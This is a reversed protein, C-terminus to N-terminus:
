TDMEAEAGGPVVFLSLSSVPNREFPHSAFPHRPFEPISHSLTIAVSGIRVIEM